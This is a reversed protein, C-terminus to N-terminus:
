KTGYLLIFVNCPKWPAPSGRVLDCIRKIMHDRSGRSLIFLTIDRTGCSRYDNQHLRLDTKILSLYLPACKDFLKDRQAPDRSLVQCSLFKIDRNGSLRYAGTNIPQHSLTHPEWKGLWMDRQDRPWTINHSLIANYGCKWMCKRYVDCKACHHILTRKGLKMGRQDHSQTLFM